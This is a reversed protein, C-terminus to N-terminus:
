DTKKVAEVFRVGDREALMRVAVFGIGRLADITADSSASSAKTAKPRAGLLAAFGGAHGITDLVMCRGGPRLIRWAEQFIPVRSESDPLADRVVVLDFSGSEFTLAHLPASSTEVLAGEKLAIRGAESARDPSADVACTRGSLGTKAALAAILSPDSCGIVLVRDGLKAGTMSVSLPDIAPARFWKFM